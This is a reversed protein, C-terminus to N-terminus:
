NDTHFSGVGAFIIISLHSIIISWHNEGEVHEISLEHLAKEEGFSELVEIQKERWRASQVEILDREIGFCMRNPSRPLSLIHCSAFM